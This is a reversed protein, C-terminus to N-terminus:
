RGRYLYNRFWCLFYGCWWCLERVGPLPLWMGPHTERWTSTTEVLWSTVGVGSSVIGAVGFTTGAGRSTNVAGRPVHVAVWALPEWWGILSGGCGVILSPARVGSSAGHGRSM